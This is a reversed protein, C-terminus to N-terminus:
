PRDRVASGIVRNQALPGAFGITAEGDAFRSGTPAYVTLTHTEPVVLPQPLLTIRFGGTDTEFAESTYVVRVERTQGAPVELVDWIRTFRDEQASELFTTETGTQYRRVKADPPILLNLYMRNMGVPDTPFAPGLLVSPPGPPALNSIEIDVTVEARGQEDLRVETEVSRRLFYDVKNAALSNTWVMQVADDEPYDGAVGLEIASEQLEDDVSYLQVHKQRLAEALGDVLEATDLDQSRLRNWAEEIVSALWANQADEEEFALYVDHLLVKRANAKNVILDTGQGSIPGTARVLAEVVSPDISVVGDLRDGTRSAHLDLFTSAVSPFDASLNAQRWDQLAGFPEYSDVYWDPASPDITRGPGPRPPPGVDSLASQGAQSTLVGYFGVIGGTARAESLSQFVLLYRQEGEGGMVGNALTLGATARQVQELAGEMEVTSVEVAEKIRSNNPRAGALETTSRILTSGVLGLVQRLSEVTAVDLRGDSYLASTLTGNVGIVDNVERAATLGAEAGAAAVRALRGVADVDDGIVPLIEALLFAPHRTANSGPRADDLAASFHEEATTLQENKLATIADSLRDPVSPLARLRAAVYAGDAVLLFLLIAIVRGWRRRQRDDTPLPAAENRAQDMRESSLARGRSM